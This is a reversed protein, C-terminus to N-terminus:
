GLAALVPMAVYAGDCGISKATERIFVAVPNPFVEM